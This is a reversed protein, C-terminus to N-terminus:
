RGSRRNGFVMQVTFREEGRLVEVEIRQGPTGEQLAYTYDYIDRVTRHGLRVIADGPELGAMEAPSGDNVGSIGFGEGQYGFDPVVGTYVRFAMRAGAQEPEGAPQFALHEGTSWEGILDFIFRVIKQQGRYDLLDADDSPRHYDSHTGTFFALVPIQRSYFSSHDSSGYGDPIRALEFGYEDRGNVETLLDEWTPSTGTGYVTLSNDTLRGIMDMNIMAEVDAVGEPLDEALASAGLLGLEEGDFAAFLINRNAPPAATFAGALELVGATGSANDDAGNHIAREEPVLSGEGGWGLHDFHAGIIIWPASPGATAVAGLVNHGTRVVPELDVQLSVTNGTAFSAPAFASDIGRQLEGLDRDPGLLAAAVEATVSVVIIGASSAGRELRLPELFDPEDLVPHPAVLLVAAGADRAAAAKRRLAHYEPLEMGGGDILPGYPLVLVAKGNLDLGAYDDYEEGPATIGYGGFVVGWTGTGSESYAMPQWDVWPHRSEESGSVTLTNDDGLMMEATFTFDQYWGGDNGMPELGLQRFERALYRAAKEGGPTGTRRGEMADDALTEVQARLEGATIAPDPAPGGCGTLVPSSLFIAPLLFAAVRIRSNLVRM